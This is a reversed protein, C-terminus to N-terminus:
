KLESRILDIIEVIRNHLAQSQLNALKNYSIASTVVGELKIDSIIDEAKIENLSKGLELELNESTKDLLFLPDGVKNWIGNIVYRTIGLENFLPFMIEHVHSQNLKEQEQVAVFDSSWNSLLRRLKNNKILRINGSSILDNQVPDFTPDFVVNSLHFFLSDRNVPESSDMYNVLTFGSQIITSRLQMKEDLQQLNAEYEEQLQSLIAEERLNDKRRENWNNIQLAILIGIVVLIIEGIAYTFYRGINGKSLLSKRIHRFFKIMQYLQDYNRNQLRLM